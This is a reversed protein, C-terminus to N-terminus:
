SQFKSKLIKLTDSSLHHITITALEAFRLAEVAYKEDVSAMHELFGLAVNEHEGADNIERHVDVQKGATFEGGENLLSTLPDEKRYSTREFIDVIMAFGLLNKQAASKFVEMLTVACDIAPVDNPEAGLSRLAKALIKDHGSEAQIFELVEHHANQALPLAAKLTVDCKETVYHNQRVVLASAERFKVPDNKLSSVYENLDLTKNAELDNLLHFRRAVSFISEADFGNPSKSFELAAETDWTWPTNVSDAAFKKIQNIDQSDKTVDLLLDRPTNLNLNSELVSHEDTGFGFPRPLIYALPFDSLSSMLWNIDDLDDATVNGDSLKQSIQHARDAHSKEVDIHFKLWPSTVHFRAPLDADRSITVEDYPWFRRPVSNM